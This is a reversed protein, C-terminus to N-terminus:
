RITMLFKLFDSNPPLVLTTQSNLTTKYANLTQWFQYFDSDRSYAEAYITTAQADGTGRFTESTEYAMALLITAQKDTEARIKLAEEGGESRYLNAERVRETRMREFVANKNAEALDARKIRVDVIQIGLSDFKTNSLLTVQDMIEQRKESIIESFTYKGLENRLDSYIIGGLRIRAGNETILRERFLKLDTIKWRAYNDVSLRIKDETIIERSPADYELLRNEFVEINWVFPIKFHLGPEEIIKKIAGFQLVVVQETQDVTYVSMNIVIFLAIVAVIITITKSEM